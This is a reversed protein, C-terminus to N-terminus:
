SREVAPEFRQIAPGPPQHPLELSAASDDALRDAVAARVPPLIDGDDGANAAPGASNDIAIEIRAIRGCRQAEGVRDLVQGAFGSRSAHEIDERERAFLDATAPSVSSKTAAQWRSSRWLSALGNPAEIMDPSLGGVMM